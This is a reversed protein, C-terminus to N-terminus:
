VISIASPWLKRICIDFLTNCVALLWELHCPDFTIGKVADLIELRAVRVNSDSVVWSRFLNRDFLADGLTWAVVSESIVEKEDPGFLIGRIDGFTIVYHGRKRIEV